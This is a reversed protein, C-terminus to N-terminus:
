ILTLKFASTSADNVRAIGYKAQEHIMLDRKGLLLIHSYITGCKCHLGTRCEWMLESAHVHLTRPSLPREQFTWAHTFLPADYLLNSWTFPSRIAMHSRLMASGIYHTQQKHTVSVFGPPQYLCGHLGDSILCHSNIQGELQNWSWRNSFPSASPDPASFAAIVLKANQYVDAV